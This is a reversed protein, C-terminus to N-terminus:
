STKKRRQPSTASKKEAAREAAAVVKRAASGRVGVTHLAPLNKGDKRYLYYSALAYGLSRVRVPDWADEPVRLMQGLESHVKKVIERGVERRGQVRARHKDPNKASRLDRCIACTTYGGPSTAERVGCLVCIGRERDRQRRRKKNEANRIRQCEDHHAPCRLARQGYPMLGCGPEICKRVGM